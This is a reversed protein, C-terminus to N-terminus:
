PYPSDGFNVTFGSEDTISECFKTQQQILLDLRSQQEPFETSFMKLLKLGFLNMELMLQSNSQFAGNVFGLDPLDNLIVLEDPTIKKLSRLIESNNNFKLAPALQVDTGNVELTASVSDVEDLLEIATHFMREVFPVAGMTTPDSELDDRAAEFEVKLSESLVAAVPALDFYVSLQTIGESIASLFLNYSPDTAISRSSGKYTDITSECM